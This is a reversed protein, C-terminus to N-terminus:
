KELDSMEPIEAVVRLYHAEHIPWQDGSEYTANWVVNYGQPNKYKDLFGSYFVARHVVNTSRHAVHAVYYTQPKWGGAPPYITREKPPLEGPLSLTAGDNNTM